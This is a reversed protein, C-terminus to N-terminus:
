LYTSPLGIHFNKPYRKKYSTLLMRQRLLLELPCEWIDDLMGFAYNILEGFQVKTSAMTSFDVAICLDILSQCTAFPIYVGLHLRWGPWKIKTEMVSPM